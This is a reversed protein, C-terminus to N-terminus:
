WVTATPTAMLPPTMTTTTPAAASPGATVPLSPATATAFVAVRARRRVAGAGDRAREVIVVAVNVYPTGAWPRRVERTEVGRRRYALLLFRCLAM